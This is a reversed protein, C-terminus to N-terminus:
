FGIAAPKVQRYQGNTYTFVYQYDDWDVKTNRSRDITLQPGEYLLHILFVPANGDDGFPDDILLLRAREPLTPHMALIQDALAHIFIPEDWLWHRAGARQDHLNLKGFRWGVVAFVVCALATRYQPMRRTALDEFAVFLAAAYLTWGPWSVFIVFGGRPPAFSVPLLGFFIITWAFILVRSRALLATALLLGLITMSVWTKLADKTIFIYGLYVNWTSAFRNWSFELRYDPNTNMSDPGHLKGITYAIAIVALAAILLGGRIKKQFLMEYAALFVPLCVAMEKADLALICCVVIAAIRWTSLRRGSRRASIYLCLALWVFTFCLVDYIVGTRFWVEMMRTQFAFILTSLAAIRDSESILRVAWFCLAINAVGLALAAIHFPLPNFGVVAFIGRYWIAGLPRFAGTWFFLNQKILEGVPKSWAMYLNYMDDGDFYRFLSKWTFLLFYALIIAATFPYLIRRAPSPFPEQM